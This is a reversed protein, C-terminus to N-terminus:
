DGAQETPQNHKKHVLEIEAAVVKQQQALTEKKKNNGEVKKKENYLTLM